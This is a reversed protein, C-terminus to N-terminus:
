EPCPDPGPVNGGYTGRGPDLRYARHGAVVQVVLRAYRPYSGGVELGFTQGALSRGNRDDIRSDVVGVGGKVRGGIGPLSGGEVIHRGVVEEVVLYSPQGDLVDGPAAIRGGVAQEAGAIVDG